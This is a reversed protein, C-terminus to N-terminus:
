NNCIPGPPLTGLVSSNPDKNQIWYRWKQLWECSIIHHSLEDDEAWSENCINVDQSFNDGIM